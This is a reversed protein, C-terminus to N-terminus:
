AAVKPDLLRAVRLAIAISEARASDWLKCQNVHFTQYDVADSYFADTNAQIAKAFHRARKETKKSTVM